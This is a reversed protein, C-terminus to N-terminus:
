RRVFLNYFGLQTKSIVYSVDYKVNQPRQQLEPFIQQPQFRRLGQRTSRVKSSFAPAQRLRFGRLRAHATL